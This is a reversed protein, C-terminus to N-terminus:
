FYLIKSVDGYGDFIGFIDLWRSEGSTSFAAVGGISLCWLAVAGTSFQMNSTKM